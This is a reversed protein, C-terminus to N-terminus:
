LLKGRKIKPKTAGNIEKELDTISFVDPRKGSLIARAEDLDGVGDWTRAIIDDIDRIGRLWLRKWEMVTFTSPNPVSMGCCTNAEQIYERSTLFDPCGLAVGEEQAIAILERHIPGWTGDQTGRWVAEIDVGAANMAKLNYDNIHMFYTNYSNVGVSKVARLAARFLDPTHLGPVFPEGNFAVNVGLNRLRAAAELREQPHDTLKGELHEWDWDLGPSMEIMVTARGQSALLRDYDRDVLLTPFKTQVVYSWGLDNFVGLIARSVKLTKEIPQYPDAKNGFRITKQAKIARALPTRPDPNKLGNELERRVTEPNAARQEMGWTRNMRRLFCMPCGVCQWYADVQLSLPCWYHDGRLSIPSKFEDM